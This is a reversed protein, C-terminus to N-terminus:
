DAPENESGTDIGLHELRRLLRPRWIGLIDAAQSRNGGAQRLALLILRREAQELLTDLPLKRAAPLPGTRLFFPLDALEIREGKARAAAGRLVDHVERLNGPWAYARLARVAEASVTTPLSAPSEHWTCARTLFARILWELDALRQRLPPLHITVTSAASHLEEHLRGARVVEAPDDRHGLILRPGRTSDDDSRLRQALREQLERPLHAPERVYVTGLALREGRPELLLDAVLSAPLAHADIHAFGRDRWPSAHHIARALWHKGTGSEGILTVPLRLTAALRAQELARKMAPVESALDDLRFAEAHRDRLALLRDPLPATVAPMTPLPTIKGLIGLLGDAGRLPFFDLQWWGGAPELARRRARCVAGTLAEAPPAFTPLPAENAEGDSARRPRCPRGRVAALSLGTCEEWARNAYLLRRRRNLVFVPEHAHRLYTQWRLDVSSTDAM